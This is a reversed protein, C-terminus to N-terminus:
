LLKIKFLRFLVHCTNNFYSNNNEFIFIRTLKIIVVIM